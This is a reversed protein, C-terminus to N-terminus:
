SAPDRDQGEIGWSMPCGMLHWAFLYSYVAVRMRISRVLGLSLLLLPSLLLLSVALRSVLGVHLLREAGPGILKRFYRYRSRYLEVRSRGPFRGASGGGIHIADHGPDYLVEWGVLQMRYCWDTEELYFFYGEDLLGVM